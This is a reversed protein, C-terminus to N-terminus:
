PLAALFGSRPVFPKNNIEMVYGGVPIWESGVKIRDAGTVVFVQQGHYTFRLGTKREFFASLGQGQAWDSISIFRKGHHDTLDTAALSVSGDKVAPFHQWALMRGLVRRAIDELLVRDAAEDAVEWVVRGPPGTGLHILQMTVSATEAGASFYLTKSTPDKAKGVLDGLPNGSFGDNRPTGPLGPQTIGASTGRRFEIIKAIRAEASPSTASQICLSALDAREFRSGGVVLGENLYRVYEPEFGALEPQLDDLVGRSSPPCIISSATFLLATIM